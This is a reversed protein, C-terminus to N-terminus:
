RNVASPLLGPALSRVPGDDGAALAERLAALHGDVRERPYPGGWGRTVLFAWDSSQLALLERLARAGARRGGALVDLEARRAAVALDAVQPGSWTWLNRPTGWTTVPLDAPAPAPEVAALAEDLPALPLGQRAAEGLVAELWQVGEHWWHGLLETDLACVCLGGSATREIVRAVFHAADAAVQEAARQPDYVAGDNAWPKHHYRTLHHSDRYAAAAPYAGDSWVLEITRRDIPVLLPGAASRLPRLHADPALVDTLDVCTAHVGAEELLPDLWPAHACEPLWFGGRWDDGFRARFADVGTRVQLRVGARTALLPLVAHTASSTWSVHPALAGLVDGRRRDFADAAAAYQTSARRLEAAVAPDGADDADLAHSRVRLDRCFARFREAIGPAALQDALVPTISLTLPAPAHRDLVDALPLYTTAIAEWLWEEGAPWVGYGEVYPMHTHLVVSLTM